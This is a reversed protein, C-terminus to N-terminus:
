PLKTSNNNFINLAVPLKRVLKGASDSYFNKTIIKMPEFQIAGDNKLAIKSKNVKGSKM